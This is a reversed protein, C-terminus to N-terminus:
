EVVAPSLLGDEADEYDASEGDLAGFFHDYIVSHLALFGAYNPHICDGEGMLSEPSPLFYNPANRVGGERQLAGILDAATVQPCDAAIAQTILTIEAVLLNQTYTNGGLLTQGTIICEATMEFNLFDYGNLSIRIDPRVQIISEM